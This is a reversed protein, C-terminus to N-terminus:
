PTDIIVKVGAGRCKSLFMELRPPERANPILLVVKLAPYQRCDQVLCALWMDILIWRDDSACKLIEEQSVDSSSNLKFHISSLEPASTIATLLHVLWRPPSQLQGLGVQIECLAVLPPLEACPYSVQDEENPAYALDVLM